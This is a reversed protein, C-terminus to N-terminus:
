EMLNLVDEVTKLAKVTEGTVTKGFKEDMIAILSLVSVSDWEEYMGLVDDKKLTGEDLEMIEELLAIKEQETM